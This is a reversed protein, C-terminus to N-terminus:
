TTYRFQPNKKDTLDDEYAHDFGEPIGSADRKKNEMVALYWYVAILVMTALATALVAIFAPAYAPADKSNFVLPGIINGVCYGIFVGAANLTRKTYGAANAMVVGLLVCYTGGFSALIYTAFLLGGKNSRPLQWQLISSVVTPVQCCLMIICRKNKFKYAAYAAGLEICGTVFGAPMTLLLSNLANFGFGQVVIPTFTSYAGNAVSLLLAIFFHLWFRVDLLSEAVQSGKWHINRVGSNNEQMRAVAIYRERATFDKARIPDAPLCFFIMVAWVITIAGAVLYMYKWPSLSGKIQGLGYNILPSVVGAYGTCCYWAGIRLAQEQKRYWGGVVIMFIPSIGGELFGLCFRQAWLGQYNTCGATTMLSVGWVVTLGAAVREIPYKQALLSCPYSGFLFGIYFVSSSFSYRNAVNLDLDERIGFIAAQSLMAKDYYQLGYTFCLLPLLRWDLKRLLRKEEQPSWADDGHDQAFVRLAEDNHLIDVSLAKLSNLEVHDASVKTPFASPKETDGIQSAM